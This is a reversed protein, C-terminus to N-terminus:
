RPSIWLTAVCHDACCGSGSVTLRNTRDPVSSVSSCAASFSNGRPVASVEVSECGKDAVIDDGAAGLGTLVEDTRHVGHTHIALDRSRGPDRPSGDAAAGIPPDRLPDTLVANPRPTRDANLPRLRRHGVRSRATHWRTPAHDQVGPLVPAREDLHTAEQEPM